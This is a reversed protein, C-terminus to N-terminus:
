YSVFVPLFFFSHDFDGKRGKVDEPFVLEIGLNILEKQSVVVRELM